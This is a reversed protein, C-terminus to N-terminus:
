VNPSSVYPNKKNWLFFYITQDRRCLDHLVKRDFVSVPITPNVRDLVSKVILSQHKQHGTDDIRTM